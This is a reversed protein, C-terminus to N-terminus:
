LFLDGSRATYSTGDELLLTLSADPEIRMIKGKLEKGHDVILIDRSLMWNIKKLWENKLSTVGEQKAKEWLLMFEKVIEDQLTKLSTTNGTEIFMSTAAKPINKLEDKTMNVNLGIGLIIFTATDDTDKEAETLIGGIKKGEVLLDNPWKIQAEISYKKLVHAVCLVAIQSFFLPSFTSITNEFFAFSLYINTGKPSHWVRLHRGRGQTQEDATIIALTDKAFDVKHRKPWSNTSDVSSFHYYTIRM